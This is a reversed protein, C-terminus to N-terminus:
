AKEKYSKIIKYAKKSAEGVFSYRVGSIIGVVQIGFFLMMMVIYTVYSAKKEAEVQSSRRYKDRLKNQETFYSPLAPKDITASKKITGKDKDKLFETSVDYDKMSLMQPEQYHDVNKDFVYFRVFMAGIGISLILIATFITVLWKRNTHFTKWNFYKQALRNYQPIILTKAADDFYTNEISVRNKLFAEKEQLLKKTDVTAMEDDIAKLVSMKHIEEGTFHTLFMLVISVVFGGFIMTKQLMNESADNIMLDSFVYSFGSAEIFLLFLLIALLMFPMTRREVDGAKRMYDKAKQCLENDHHTKLQSIKRWILWVIVMSVVFFIIWYLLQLGSIEYSLINMVVDFGSKLQHSNGVVQDTGQTAEYQNALSGQKASGLLENIEADAKIAM